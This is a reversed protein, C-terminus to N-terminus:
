GQTLVCLSRAEEGRDEAMALLGHPGYVAYVGAIGGAVLPKGHVLARAGDEDVSRRPYGAVAEDMPRL